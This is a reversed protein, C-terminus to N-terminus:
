DAACYENLQELITAQGELFADAQKAAANLAAADGQQAAERMAEASTRADALQQRYRVALEAVREDRLELGALERDAADIVELLHATASPDSEIQALGEVGRIMARTHPNLREVLENCQGVRDECGAALLLALPGLLRGPAGRRMRYCGVGIRRLSGSAGSMARWETTHM